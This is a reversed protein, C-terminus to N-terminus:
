NRTVNKVSEKKIENSNVKNDNSTNNNNVNKLENYKRLYNELKEKNDKNDGRM